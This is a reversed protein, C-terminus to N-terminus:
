YSPGLPMRKWATKSRADCWFWGMDTRLYWSDEAASYRLGVLERADEPMPPLGHGALRDAAPLPPPAHALEDLRTMFVLARQTAGEMDDEGPLPYFSAIPDRDITNRVHEVVVHPVDANEAVHFDLEAPQVHEPM